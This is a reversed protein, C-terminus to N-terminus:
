GPVSALCAPPAVDTTSTIGFVGGASFFYPAAPALTLLGQYAITLFICGAFHVILSRRWTDRGFRFRGALIVAIPSLLIWPCWDRFASSAAVTWPIKLPGGHEALYLETAFVFAVALWLATLLAMRILVARWGRQKLIWQM